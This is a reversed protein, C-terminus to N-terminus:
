FFKCFRSSTKNFLRIHFAGPLGFLVVKQNEFLLNTRIKKVAKNEDLYFLEGYPLKDGKKLKM